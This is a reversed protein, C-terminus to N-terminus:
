SDAPPPPHRPRAPHPHALFLGGPEPHRRLERHHVLFLMRLPQGPWPNFPILNIKAPVGQMLRVLERAEAPSDNIGEAHRIRLHGAPREVRRSLSEGAMLEAIPYKKNLPVLENRLADNTAHLSIALM